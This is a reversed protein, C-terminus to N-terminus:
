NVAALAKKSVTLEVLLGDSTFRREWSGGLQGTVSLEVLRSGFGTAGTDTVKPGGQEIWCLLLDDSRDTIELTVYGQANSLAGYKASNTALEHFVLALPTAARASIDADSGSVVVRPESESRAYPAFLAQLLGSLSDHTEGNDPRVFDHARNLARLVETLDAAFPAHEPARRAKLTVLSIVVAFINKIRHSLERALMDREELSKHTDDIDTITGFWRMGEGTEDEVPVALSLVWRYSGDAQLMRYEVEFEEKAEYASYWEAIAQEADDPHLYARWEEAIRPPETGVQQQWRSNFYDFNGDQDASWAIQPLGEIIRRVQMERQENAREARLSDRRAELHLMAARALVALGERQFDDLPAAHPSSDMVCLTGLSAGERSVLPQGAYYRVRPPGTVLPNDAFRPDRAPDTVEFLDPKGLTHACFAINRPTERLEVGSRALFRQKSSEVLAIVSVPTKCLRAAFRVIDQLDPDDELTDPDFSEVVDLRAADEGFQPAPMPMGGTSFSDLLKLSKSGYITNNCPITSFTFTKAHKNRDPAVAEAARDTVFNYVIGMGADGRAPDAQPKLKYRVDVAHSGM